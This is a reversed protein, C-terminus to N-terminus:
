EEDQEDPRQQEIDRLRREADDDFLARQNLLIRSMADGETASIRGRAVAQAIAANAKPLDDPTRIPPLHFRSPLAKALPVLRELCARLIMQDPEKKLAQLKVQNIIEVGNGALLEQFVTM